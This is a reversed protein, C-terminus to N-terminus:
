ANPREGSALLPHTLARFAAYAPQGVDVQGYWAFDFRLTLERFPTLAARAGRFGRFYDWNSKAPDYDIAGDRHLRSLLALYLHRIAERFQGKAALADALEAWGEPPRALASMPDAALPTETLAAEDTAAEAGKKGLSRLLVAGLVALVLVVAGVVVLNTLGLDLSPGSPASVPRRENGERLWKWLAEWFDNWLKALWGPPEPDDKKPEVEQPMKVEAPREFEPRALIAEAEARASAADGEPLAAQALALGDHLERVAGECDEGEFARAELRAVFRALAAQESQPLAGLRELQAPPAAGEEASCEEWLGRLRQVLTSPAADVEDAAAGPFYTGSWDDTQARAVPALLVLLLAATAAAGSKPRRRRPLQEVAAMLDLGEQRVRGDVLLLTACAARLPEFLGFTLAAVTAVWVPNDLSAFRDVFSVDVAVLTSIAKLGLAAGLHLNFALIVQALGALRVWGAAARAPGLRRASTFYIALPHGEGKLAVAYGATHASLFLLALGGSLSFLTLNLLLNHACVVALSPLRFLAKKWSVWGDPEGAGLITEELHHSAAAQSVARFLWAIALGAAPWAMDRNLRLADAFQFVAWCLLAVSPLVISWVGLARGCLRVAADLLAVTSRPKLELSDVAM